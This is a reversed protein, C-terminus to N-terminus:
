RYLERAIILKQIESTGEYIETVKADRYYREVRYDRHYGYGGLIQVADRTVSVAVDSAFLKATSAELTYREGRDKKAAAELVLGRAAAIRTHMEALKFSVGQFDRLRQGFQFREDAYRRAIEFAARAMGVAQAAIGIRGSDLGALAQALGRGEQGLLNEEPVFVGELRVECTHAAHLGMKEEPPGFSLGPTGKEVIFSSIGAEGRAMVVYVQAQGGSTVWSKVGNLQWGGPVKQARTKLSAPDSGAHPESLCFAGIWEGKALPVLYKKKQGESGYRLLMYQPLGSTVSLIVAVSPDATAIEELALAWTVSDLGAGGWAEPTTMGLLGLQGLKRLQPWPYSGTRDYEPALEWLIERSVQRVMELVMKQEATLSPM